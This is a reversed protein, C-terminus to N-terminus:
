LFLVCILLVIGPSVLIYKPIHPRLLRVVKKTPEADLELFHIEAATVRASGALAGKDGSITNERGLGGLGGRNGGM